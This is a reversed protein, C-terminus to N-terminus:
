GGGTGPSAGSATTSTSSSGSTTDPSGSTTDSSGSPTDPSRSTTSSSGSTTDPSGAGGATTGTGGTTTSGTTTSGTAPPATAPPATTPPPPPRTTTSPPPASRAGPDPAGPPLTAPDAPAVSPPSSPQWGEPVAGEPLSATTSPVGGRTAGPGFPLVGTFALLKSEPTRACNVGVPTTGGSYYRLAAIFDGCRMVDRRVSPEFGIAINVAAMDLRDAALNVNRAVTWYWAAIAPSALDNVALDPEGALDLDLAEGAARYNAGGTLQILGRGRYRSDNGGEVADYRFGSENRLTALFAAKRAPTSIGAAHMAANLAPLGAAVKGEDPITGYIQRLEDLTVLDEGNWDGAVPLVDPGGDVGVTRVADPDDPEPVPLDFRGEDRRLLGVEDRGDGDWDGAVPFTEAGGTGLHGPALPRRDDDLLVVAGDSQRYVGIADRGDGDWDGVVPLGSTDGSTGVAVPDSAEGSSLLVVFTGRDRAYLGITDRGDGDFDGALPWADAQGPEGLAIPQYRTGEDGLLHFTADSRRYLGVSDRGDGDWDGALPVEGTEAAAADAGAPDTAANEAGAPDGTDFPFASLPSGAETRRGFAATSPQYWGVGDGGGDVMVQGWSQLFPYPDVTCPERSNMEGCLNMQFHIHSPTTAANGTHGVRAIAQGRAVREGETVLNESNHAYYYAVGSDGTLWVTLGGLGDDVDDVKTIVGAEVAVAPTGEATMLDNGKHARRCGDRCAHWTDDFHVEHPMPVPFVNDAPPVAAVPTPAAAPPAPQASATGAAGTALVAVLASALGRCARGRWGV